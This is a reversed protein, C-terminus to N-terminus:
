TASSLFRKVILRSLDEAWDIVNQHNSGVSPIGNLIFLAQHTAQTAQCDPKLERLISELISSYAHRLRVIDKTREATLYRVEINALFCWDPNGAQFELHHQVFAIVRQAPPVTKYLHDLTNEILQEYGEEILEQLLAEKSDIHVYLSGSQLGTEKGLQRMSVANYGHETFLRMAAKLIRNRTSSAYNATIPDKM